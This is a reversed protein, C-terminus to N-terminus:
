NSNSDFHFVGFLSRADRLDAAMLEYLVRAVVKVGIKDLDM